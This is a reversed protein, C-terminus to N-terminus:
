RYYIMQKICMCLYEVKCAIAYTIEAFNSCSTFNEGTTVFGYITKGGTLLFQKRVGKRCSYGINGAPRGVM